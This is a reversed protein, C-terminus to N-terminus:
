QALKSVFMPRLLDAGHTSLHESDSYLVEGNLRILCTAACLREHPYIVNIHDRELEKLLPMIKRQSTMFDDLSPGEPFPM